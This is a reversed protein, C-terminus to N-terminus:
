CAVEGEGGTAKGLGDAFHAPRVQVPMRHHYMDPM